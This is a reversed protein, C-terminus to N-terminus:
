KSEEEGNAAAKAEDIESVKEAGAEDLTLQRATAVYASKGSWIVQDTGAADPCTKSSAQFTIEARARDAQPKIKVKLTVERMATPDTNPDLCNELARNLEFNFQSVAKGDAINALQIEKFNM